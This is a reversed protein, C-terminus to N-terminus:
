AASRAEALARGPEIGCRLLKKYVKLGHPSLVALRARKAAARKARVEPRAWTLKAAAARKARVEPRAWTLKAAAAM